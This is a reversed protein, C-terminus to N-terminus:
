YAEKGSLVTAATLFLIRIDLLLSWNAIYELDYEVRRRAKEITAAEGRYGAVQAWGTIGPKMRHRAAYNSVVARYDADSALMGVPHPRPGILSMDGKLVNFLQPLEDISWRRLFRGVRTVRPDDKVTRARGTPDAKDVYMTRFKLIDFITDNFGHRPQRFFIPGPSELRIALAALLLIPSALLTILTGFILDEARKMLVQRDTLPRSGIQMLPVGYASVAGRFRRHLTRTAFALFIDVPLIGLRETLRLIREESSWPVALIVCDVHQTRTFEILSDLDGFFPVGALKPQREGHREDFIGVIEADSGGYERLDGVLHEAIETAGVIVIRDHWRKSRRLRSITAALGIREALLAFAALGLWIMTWARSWFDTTKTVFGVLLWAVAMLALAMLARRILYLSDALRDVRYARLVYALALYLGGAVGTAALYYAALWEADLVRVVYIHFAIAGAGLIALLDAVALSDALLRRSVPKM